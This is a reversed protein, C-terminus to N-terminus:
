RARGIPSADKQLKAFEAPNGSWLQVMFVDDLVRAAEILKPLAQRDGASLKSIDVRDPTPALRQMMTQLQQLDPTRAPPAANQAALTTSMVMSAIFPILTRKM